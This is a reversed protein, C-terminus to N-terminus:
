NSRLFQGDETFQYDNCECLDSIYDESCQYEVDNAVAIMFAELAQNFAYLADGSAKFVDYFEYMLDCDFCYNTLMEERNVDRLKLGRFNRNTADTKIYDNRSGGYNYDRISVNFKDCFKELSNHADSWDYHNNRAFYAIVNQKASDSLESFTYVNITATRM